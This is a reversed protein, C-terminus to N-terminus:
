EVRRLKEREKEFVESLRPSAWRKVGRQEGVDESVTWGGAPSPVELDIETAGDSGERERESGTSSSSRSRGELGEVVKVVDLENMSEILRVTRLTAVGSPAMMKDVFGSLDGEETPMRPVVAEAVERFRFLVAMVDVLFGGMLCEGEGLERNSEQQKACINKPILCQMCGCRTAPLKQRRLEDRVARRLRSAEEDRSVRKCEILSHNIGNSVNYPDLICYMCYMEKLGLLREELTLWQERRERM